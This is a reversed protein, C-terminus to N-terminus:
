LFEDSCVVPDLDYLKAAVETLRGRHLSANLKGGTVHDDRHIAVQLVIRAVDLHHEALDVLTVVQYVAPPLVALVRPEITAKGRLEGVSQDRPDGTERNVIQAARELGHATLDGTFQLQVALHVAENRNQGM